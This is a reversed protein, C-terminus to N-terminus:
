NGRNPRSQNEHSRCNAQVHGTRGCRWCTGQYRGGSERTQPRGMQARPANEGERSCLRQREAVMSDAVRDALSLLESFDKPCSNFIFHTKLPGWMNQLIVEILQNENWVYRLITNSSQIDRVYESFDQNPRQFNRTIYERIFEERLRLPVFANVFKQQVNNWHLERQSAEGLIELARGKVKIMLCRVFELDTVLRLRYISHVRKLFLFVNKSNEDKLDPIGKILELLTKWERNGTCQANQDREEKSSSSRVLNSDNNAVTTAHQCPEMGEPFGTFLPVYVQTLRAKNILEERNREKAAELVPSNSTALFEQLRSRLDRKPGGTELGNYNLEQILSAKSLLELWELGSSSTM